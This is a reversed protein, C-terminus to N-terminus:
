IPARSPRARGALARRRQERLEERQRQRRRPQRRGRRERERARDRVHRVRHETKIEFKTAGDGTSAGRLGAAKRARGRHRGERARQRRRHGDRHRGEATALYYLEVNTVKGSSSSSRRAHRRRDRGHQRRRRLPWRADADALDRAPVVHRSVLAHDGRQENFRHPPVVCVFGPGGDGLEGQLRARLRGPDCRRSSRTATGRCACRTASSAPRRAPSRRTSATWRGSSASRRASGSRHVCTDTSRASTTVEPPRRRCSRRRSTRFRRGRRGGDVAARRGAGREADSRQRKVTLRDALASVDGDFWWLGAALFVASGCCHRRSRGAAIPAAMGPSPLRLPGPTM